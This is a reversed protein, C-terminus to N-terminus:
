QIKFDTVSFRGYKPRYDGFGCMKGASDLAQQVDAVQVQLGDILSIEFTTEWEKFIPRCRMVRSQQVKVGRVDRFKPLAWLAESKKPGEYRLKADNPVFVASKFQTGMKHKKAGAILAAEIMHGPLYVGAEEDYYLSGMFEAKAVDEIDTDTKKKKSTFKKLEKTFPNLPDALQGNHMLLPAESKVTANIVLTGSM